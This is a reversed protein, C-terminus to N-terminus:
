ASSTASASAGTPWSTPAARCRRRACRCISTGPRSPPPAACCSCNRRRLAGRHHQRGLRQRGRPRRLEHHVAGVRASGTPRPRDQLDCLPAPLRRAHLDRGTRRAHRPRRASQAQGPRVVRYEYIYDGYHFVFDFREAAINRFATFYGDEYRQCGAVGFRVQAVSAGAPPLTRSRGVRSREKGITFQYFYDRGPELGGLEVHVAHGLEPHAVATGKRVVQACASTPPWRGNSRSRGSRCAAAASSAAEARDQDLDRIRGTGSRRLRRRAFVSLGRLGPQGLGSTRVARRNSHGPRLCRPWAALTRRNVTAFGDVDLRRPFRITM